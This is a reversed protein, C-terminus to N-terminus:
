VMNLKIECSVLDKDYVEFELKRFPNEVYAEFPEGWVPNVTKTVHRTQFLRDQGQVCRLYPDSTGVHSSIQM